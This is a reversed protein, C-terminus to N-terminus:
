TSVALSLAATSRRPSELGEKHCETRAQITSGEEATFISLSVKAKTDEHAVVDKTFVCM